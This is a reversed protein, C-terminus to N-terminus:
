IIQRLCRHLRTQRHPLRVRHFLHCLSGHPSRSRRPLHHVQEASSRRPNGDRVDMRPTEKYTRTALSPLQVTVLVRDSAITEPLECAPGRERLVRVRDASASINFPSVMDVFSAQSWQVTYEKDACPQPYVCDDWQSPDGLRQATSEVCPREALGCLEVGEPYQYRPDMCRCEAYNEDQYCSNLCGQCHMKHCMRRHFLSRRLLLIEGPRHDGRLHRIKRRSPCLKHSFIRTSLSGHLDLLGNTPKTSQVLASLTTAFLSPTSWM